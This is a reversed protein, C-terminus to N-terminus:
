IEFGSKRVLNKMEYRDLVQKEYFDVLRNYRKWSLIRNEEPIQLKDCALDYMKVFLRPRVKHIRLIEEYMLKETFGSIYLTKFHVRLLGVTENFPLFKKNDTSIMLDQTIKREDLLSIAIIVCMYLGIHYCYGKEKRYRALFSIIGYDSVSKLDREIIEFLLKGDLVMVEGVNHRFKSLGETRCDIIFQEVTNEPNCLAMITVEKAIKPNKLDSPKIGPPLIKLMWKQISDMEFFHFFEHVLVTRLVTEYDKGARQGGILGIMTDIHISLPFFDSLATSSDSSLVQGSHVIMIHVKKLCECKQLFFDTQLVDRMIPWYFEVIDSKFGIIDLEVKKSLTKEIKELEKRNIYVRVSVENNGIRVKEKLIACKKRALITRLIPIHKWFPM